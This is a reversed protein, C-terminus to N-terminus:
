VVPAVRSLKAGGFSNRTNEVLVRPEPETNRVKADVLEFGVLVQELPVISQPEIGGHHESIVEGDLRGDPKEVAPRISDHVPRVEGVDRVGPIALQTPQSLEVQGVLMARFNERGVRQIKEPQSVQDSRLEGFCFKM